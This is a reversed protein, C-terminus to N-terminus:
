ILGLAAKLDHLRRRALPANPIDNNDFVIEYHGQQRMIGRVRELNVVYSKHARAFSTGAYRQLVQKLTLQIYYRGAESVVKCYNKDAAFFYIAQSDLFLLNGRDYIPFKKLEVKGSMPNVSAGTQTTVDLFTSVLFSESASDTMELQSLSIMLVKNLVDIIMTVPAGSLKQHAQKLLSMVKEQSKAAHYNLVSKGLETKSLRLTERATANMGIVRYDASLLLLGINLGEVFGTELAM